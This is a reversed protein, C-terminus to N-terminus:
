LGWESGDGARAVRRFDASVEFDGLRVRERKKERKRQEFRASQEFDARGAREIFGIHLGAIVVLAM